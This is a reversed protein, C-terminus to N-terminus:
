KQGTVYKRVAVKSGSQTQATAAEEVVRVEKCPAVMREALACVGM